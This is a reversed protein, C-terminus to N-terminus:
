FFSIVIPAILYGTGAGVIFGAGAFYLIKLKPKKMVFGIIPGLLLGFIATGWLIAMDM